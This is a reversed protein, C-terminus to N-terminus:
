TQSAYCYPPLCLMLLWSALLDDKVEFVFFLVLQQGLSHARLDQALPRGGSLGHKRLKRLCRWWSPLSHKFYGFRHLINRM